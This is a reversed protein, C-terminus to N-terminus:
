SLSFKMGKQLMNTHNGNQLLATVQRMVTLKSYGIFESAVHIKGLVESQVHMSDTEQRAARARERQNQM